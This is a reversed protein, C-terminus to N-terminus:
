MVDRREKNAGHVILHLTWGQTLVNPVTLTPDMDEKLASHVILVKTVRIHNGM